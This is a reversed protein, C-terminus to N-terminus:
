NDITRIVKAPNGAVIMGAPVDNTVVSGAGIVCGTGLTIGKLVLVNMGIFVDDEIVVPATKGDVPHTRRHEPDLPHFDTDTIIANCGVWVRNGITVREECIVSGGTMGFDDGITLVAQAVRTSLICPHNPGLPNSRVTSRLSMNRGIVIRSERHRQIIPLGYTKTGSQWRVGAMAFQVRAIPTLLIREIENRVKWPTALSQRVLDSMGIFAGTPKATHVVAMSGTTGSSLVFVPTPRNPCPLTHVPHFAMYLFTMSFQTFWLLSVDRWQRWTIAMGILCLGFLAGFYYRHITRGIRDFLPESYADVPDGPNLGSLALEDEPESVVLADGVYELRPLEGATPNKRPAIDISWHVLFKVWLLEPIKDTNESLYHFALEFREADAERSSLDETELEPATWQVDYGARFYPVTYESNGQWFNAGSTTTLPIFDGYVGYNRMMWGLVIVIGVIAVPLLRLVTQWLSLRFLFWVAILIALPPLIPRVVMSVGLLVGGFAALAWTRANLTEQERLVIMVWLFLYLIVMFFPTDILTLNQFILYPYGAYFMGALAGIWTGAQRNDRGFLRVGIFYLLTISITDLLTHFIGVQVGGRGAIAYVAALVYSYGPPIWADPEGPVRGYVGTAMLNQAYEDYADSGHVAGTQEFNFVQPFAFLIGMRLTVAIILVIPLKYRNIRNFIAPM